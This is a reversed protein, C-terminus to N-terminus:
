CDGTMTLLSNLFHGVFKLVQPQVTVLGLRVQAALRLDDVALRLGGLFAGTPVEVAGAGLLSFAVRGVAQQLGDADDLVREALVSRENHAFDERRVSRNVRAVEAPAEFVVGVQPEAELLLVRQGLVALGEAEGLVAVRGRLSRIVARDADLVADTAVQDFLVEVGAELGAQRDGADVGFHHLTLPFVLQEALAGLLGAVVGPNSAVQELATGLLVVDDDLEVRLGDLAVPVAATHM